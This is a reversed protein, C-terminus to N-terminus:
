GKEYTVKGNEGIVTVTDGRRIEGSIIADSLLDEVYRSIVRKVNRAGYEPNFSDNVIIDMASNDVFLHYGQANVRKILENILIDAVDYCDSKSLRNFTIIDDFRNLFEAKFHRKLADNVDNEVTSEGFGFSSASKNSFGVNSTLIIITNKFNILRGKNDSLRGEGMVQLLVDYIEPSAKEIEDFLVVSYPNKRVKESLLGEQEYGVYGPASGILKNIATKDQYESMDFRILSNKDGFVSEALAKALETKGVGTPGVFLFSGIPKNPDNVNARSRRVARSVSEIAKTQGVIKKMLDDELSMLKFSDEGSLDAVPIKTWVSILKKIDHETVCTDLESRKVYDKEKEVRIKAVLESIKNECAQAKVTDERSIAYDREAIYKNIENELTIIEKPTSTIEVRKKSSAEDILDIAKDPLFRGTVYRDSLKVAAVIAEDKIIIKHHSEYVPKIGRLIEIAVDVSPENIVIPQFRRELASDKEIYKTYEDNTTAGIVSLEGRALTPKLFEATDFKGDSTSGAGVINHIEDIFLIINGDSIAYDIASKLREEFEGRFKTGSLLGAIDLSFIKKKRLFEPAEGSVIKLALGEVISTKGVGAEGLLIPSNKTKRSLTQIVRAIEEDRGIVPDIEGNEARETLYYGFADLPSTEKTVAFDEREVRMKPQESFNVANEVAEYVANEKNGSVSVPKEPQVSNKVKIKIRDLIYSYLTHFDVGLSRLISMARCDEISLVALLLHETSVYSLKLSRAIEEATKMAGKAKATYGIVSREKLTRKLQPFYNAHTVGFKNLYACADCKPTKLIAYLILETGLYPVNLKAQQNEATKLVLFYGQTYNAM